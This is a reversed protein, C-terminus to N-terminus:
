ISEPVVVGFRALANLTAEMRALRADVAAFVADLDVGAMLVAGNDGCDLERPVGGSIYSVRADDVFTASAVLTRPIPFGPANVEHVAILELDRGVGRWDGSPAGGELMQLHTDSLGNATVGAVWIGWADEGARVYCAVTSVDDYYREAERRASYRDAHLGGMTIRGVPVPGDACNYSGVHFFAYGSKSVPATQCDNQIGLHCVGWPAIHGRVLAMGTDGLREVTFPTLNDFQPDDFAARYVTCLGTDDVRAFRARGPLGASAAVADAEVMDGVEIQAEAFAPYMTVVAGIIRGAELVLRENVINGQDDQEVEYRVKTNDLDASIGRVKQTRVADAAATGEADATFVGEVMITDGTRTLTEIRGSAVAGGHGNMGEPLTDQYAVSLPLDRWTLAGQEIFRGDGTEVGEVMLVGSFPTEGPAASAVLAADRLALAGIVVRWRTMTATDLDM